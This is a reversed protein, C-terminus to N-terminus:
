GRLGKIIQFLVKRWFFFETITAVAVIVRWGILAVFRVGFLIKKSM